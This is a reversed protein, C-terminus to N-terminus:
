LVQPFMKLHDAMLRKDGVQVGAAIYESCYPGDRSRFVCDQTHAM